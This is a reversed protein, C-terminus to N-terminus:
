RVGIAYGTCLWTTGNDVTLFSFVDVRSAATSITPAAGGEWDVSSPWTITSGGSGDQRAILTFSCAVSATAGSFTFEVNEDLTVDFVNGNALNLTETAGAAGVTSLTEKGGLLGLTIGDTFDTAIAPQIVVTGTSYTTGPDSTGDQARVITATTASATHATVKVIEPAATEPGLVLYAVDPSAVAPFSALEACTLTTATTALTGSLTGYFFNSRIRAM